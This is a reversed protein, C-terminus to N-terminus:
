RSISSPRPISPKYDAAKLRGQIYKGLVYVAQDASRFVPLGTDQLARALPDYLPGSDVVMILPKDSKQAVRSIRQVISQQSSFPNEFHNEDPLTEIVPTLPVLAAAVADVGPDNLLTQIGKEYVDAMAMPTVDLPNNINVLDQLGNEKLCAGLKQRTEKSFRAMQLKFNEGLLNDAIGVAEYGANSIAALRNGHIKKHCLNVSLQLLGEFETFTHAVMAGAEEMCTRCVTYDGALSATHGSTATKGEMTRGAKYFLIEKGKVVCQKVAGAFALGDLDRFGEMYVAITKINDLTSFYQLLDGATLDMQNGMSLAYAPDFFTLKSMRTIMYAGSQSLFASSRIQDGRSKPLKEEPIFLADYRGPHSLVGLSNGGLVLPSSEGSLHAKQILSGMNAARDESGSVEGLGGPILIVTHTCDATIIKEMLTAATDAGVALILVDLKVTLHDLDPLPSVAEIATKEPHIVHICRRDFGNAIINQLIIRGPNMAKASVGIIGINRPHLLFDIKHIPRTVPRIEPKSFRCFGDLPVMLYKSFAFPNIELEEIVYPADPNSASFHNGVAIMAAFCEKLQEDTVKRKEGRSRGTLKDWSLTRQYLQFFADGDTMATSASVVAQGPRFRRAYLETDTGGLGATLITGFERSNRLSVLLENGFDATDVPLFQCILVGKIDRSIAETLADGELNRYSLPVHEKPTQRLIEAFKEPVEYYMSRVTSLVSEQNKETITIGGADSKHIICPSIIKVVVRDGPIADLRSQDVREDRPLVYYKLPTEGGLARILEYVEYEFLFSRNEKEAKSFLATIDNIRIYLKM